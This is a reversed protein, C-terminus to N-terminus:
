MAGPECLVSRCTEKMAMKLVGFSLSWLYSVTGCHFRVVLLQSLEKFVGPVAGGDGKGPEKQDEASVGPQKLLSLYEPLGTDMKWVQRM